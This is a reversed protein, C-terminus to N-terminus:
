YVPLVSLSYTIDTLRATAAARENNYGAIIQSLTSMQTQNGMGTAVKLFYEQKPLDLDIFAVRDLLVIQEAELSRRLERNAVIEAQSPGTPESLAVPAVPAQPAPQVDGAPPSSPQGPAPAPIVPAPDATAGIGPLPEVPSQDRPRSPASCASLILTVTLCAAVM